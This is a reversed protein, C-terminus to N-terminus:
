RFPKYYISIMVKASKFCVSFSSLFLVLPFQGLFNARVSWPPNTIRLSLDWDHTQSSQTARTVGSLYFVPGFPWSLVIGPFMAAKISDAELCLPYVLPLAKQKAKKLFATSLDSTALLTTQCAQFSICTGHMALHPKVSQM